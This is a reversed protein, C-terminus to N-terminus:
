KMWDERRGGSGGRMGKGSGGQMGSGDTREQRKGERCGDGGGEWVLKGAKRQRTVSARVGGCVSERCAKGIISNLSSYM